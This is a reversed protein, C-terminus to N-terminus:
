RAALKHRFRSRRPLTSHGNLVCFDTRQESACRTFCSFRRFQSTANMITMGKWDFSAHVENDPYYLKEHQSSADHLTGLRM